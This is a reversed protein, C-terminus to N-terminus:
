WLALRNHGSRSSITDSPSTRWLSGNGQNAPSAVGEAALVDPLCAHDPEM